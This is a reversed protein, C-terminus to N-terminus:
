ACTWVAIAEAPTLRNVVDIMVDVDPGVADRVAAVREEANRVMATYSMSELGRGEEFDFVGFDGFPYLRVATYGDEVCASAQEALEEPTSGGM